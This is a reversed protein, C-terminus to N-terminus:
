EWAEEDGRNSFPDDEDESPDVFKIGLFRGDEFELIPALSGIATCSGVLGIVCGNVTASDDIFFSDRAELAFGLDERRQVM